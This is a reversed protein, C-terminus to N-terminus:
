QTAVVAKAPDASIADPPVEFQPAYGRPSVFAVAKIEREHVDGFVTRGDAPNMQVYNDKTKHDDEICPEFHNLLSITRLGGTKKDQITVTASILRSTNCVAGFGPAVASSFSIYVDKGTNRCFGEGYECRQRLQDVVDDYKDDAQKDFEKVVATARVDRFSHLDFKFPGEGGQLMRRLSKPLADNVDDAEIARELNASTLKYMGYKDELVGRAASASTDDAFLRDILQLFDVKGDSTKLTTKVGNPLDVELEILQNAKVVATAAVAIVAGVAFAAIGLWIKSIQGAAEGAKSEGAAPKRPM